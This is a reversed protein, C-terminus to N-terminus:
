SIVPDLIPTSSNHIVSEQVRLNLTYAKLPINQPPDAMKSQKEQINYLTEFEEQINTFIRSAGM